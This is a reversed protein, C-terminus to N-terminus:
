LQRAGCSSDSHAKSLPSIFDSHQGDVLDGISILDRQSHYWLSKIMALLTQSDRMQNPAIWSLFLESSQLTRVLVRDDSIKVFLRLYRSCLYETLSQLNVYFQCRYDLIALVRILAGGTEFHLCNLVRLLHDFFGSNLGKWTVWLWHGDPSFRIRNRHGQEPVFRLLSQMGVRRFGKNTSGWLHSWRHTYMGHSLRQQTTAWFENVLTYITGRQNLISRLSTVTDPKRGALGALKDLLIGVKHLDIFFVLSTVHRDLVLNYLFDSATHM